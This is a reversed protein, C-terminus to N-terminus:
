SITIKTMAFLYPDLTKSKYSTVQDFFSPKNLTKPSILPKSKENHKCLDFNTNLLDAFKQLNILFQLICTCIVNSQPCKIEDMPM